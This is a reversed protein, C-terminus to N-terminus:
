DWLMLTTVLDLGRANPYHNLRIGRANPYHRVELHANLFFQRADAFQGTGDRQNVTFPV